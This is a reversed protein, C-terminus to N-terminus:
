LKCIADELRKYVDEIKGCDKFELNLSVSVGILFLNVEILYEIMYGILVQKPIDNFGGFAYVICDDKTNIAYDIFWPLDHNEVLYKKDKM